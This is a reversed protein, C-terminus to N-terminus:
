KKEFGVVELDFIINANPPIPGNGSAGYGLFSPVFIRAKDGINMNLMAERFGPVLTASENYPMGFPKYAGQKDADENYQGAKKADEALTTWFFKGNELYGTCDILVRDSAKPTIANAKKDLIMVMGTSFEKVEGKRDANDKLFKSAAEKSKMKLAEMAKQKIDEIKQPLLPEQETFVKAADFAKADKGKRIINLKEIIVNDVPKTGKVPVNSITDQVDLGLVLEGFVAHCSTRPRNCDKLSGDANFADLNKKPVETIFFQSGNTDFRGSNAMSLIGPKDHSLTSDFESYFKFGASGMGTGTPDGGQIMFKNMVRHFIIGNYFPKGKLSDALKPHTGEALGVFNAVTVPVKDYFLKAVMTGKNTVFEAYIGDEVDPYKEQCSAASLSVMLAIIILKM